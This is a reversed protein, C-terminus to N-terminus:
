IAKALQLLVQWLYDARRVHTLEHILVLERIRADMSTLSSTPLLIAPRFCGLVMPTRTEDSHRLQVRQRVGLQRCLRGLVAAWAPDDLLATTARLHRAARLSLLLRVVMLGAGIGYVIVLLAAAHRRGIPAYVGTMQAPDSEVRPGAAEFAATAALERDRLAVGGAPVISVDGAAASGAAVEAARAQVPTAHLRETGAHLPLFDVSVQPFLATSVPLLFLGVLSAEWVSACALPWRRRLLRDLLFAVALLATAKVGVNWGFALAQHLWATVDEDFGSM